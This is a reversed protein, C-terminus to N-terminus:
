ANSKPAARNPRRLTLGTAIPLGDALARDYHLRRTKRTLYNACRVVPKAAKADLGHREVM